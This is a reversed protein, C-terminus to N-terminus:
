NLSVQERDLFMRHWMELAMLSFVEKSYSGRNSNADILKEVAAKQFYGREMTKRDTLVARVQDKLNDRLWFEYPVPFGVKRRKLIRSPIRKSLAKKWIYKLTFGNLKYHAPLSAAFELLRHDLLPVRLELSNAMTMKDAKILLDDPLWTKTDIYLMQDLVGQDNVRSFLKRIPEVTYEKDISRIFDASYLEGIGNGSYQYPTSTRSYYYDPFTANMLPVYKTMRQSHMLSNLQSLGWSAAGNAVPWIHKLRELWCISRYNNYGAFAEDGGEGSLLVKVHNRALKSVYYLAIAPPECVPEEMHWVYRPLFEAFDSATITMEHHRSGCSEAALRAYPREDAFGSDSFGVTFTSIEKDTREAACSLVATSDVGGSLLVGVPVDAIMHLEVTEALLSSLEKETDKFSPRDSSKGFQLDWYQRIEAKGDKLLLYHGPALKCIGKLLTEEGPVYLFTLFRDIIEPALERNVSPDALIAKIESAFVLAKDTLSYYLPKIGVRDRALFLTKAKQDWLAFAFMGRLQELCRPGLEEYLHVIVETDTQTKFIHGKALLQRRLERYNYIEGNFVLWVRGDENSIPQHGTSLDIISLRCFGLGIPGSAYYGEDDPGRHRITDAMTKLLAPFVTGEGSLILKGCIGCM